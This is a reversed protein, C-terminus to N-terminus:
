APLLPFRLLDAWRLTLRCLTGDVPEAVPFAMLFPPSM